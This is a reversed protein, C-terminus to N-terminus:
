HKKQNLPTKPKLYIIPANTWLQPSEQMSLFVQTADFDEYTDSKSLKRLIESAFTHMPMMRGSVDQIVMKAFKDAHM